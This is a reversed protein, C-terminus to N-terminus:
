KVCIKSLAIQCHKKVLRNSVWIKKVIEVNNLDINSMINYIIDTIPIDNNKSMNELIRKDIDYITIRKM